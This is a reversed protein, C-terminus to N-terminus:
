QQHQSRCAPASSDPDTVYCRRETFADAEESVCTKREDDDRMPPAARGRAPAGESDGDHDQRRALRLARVCNMVSAMKSCADAVVACYKSVTVSCLGVGMRLAELGGPWPMAGISQMTKLGDYM